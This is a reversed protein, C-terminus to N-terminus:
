YQIYADHDPGEAVRGNDIDVFVEMDDRDAENCFSDRIGVWGANPGNGILAFPQLAPYLPSRGSDHSFIM